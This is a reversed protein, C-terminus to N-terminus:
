GLGDRRRSRRPAAGARVPRPRVDPQPQVMEAAVARAREADRAEVAEVLRRHSEVSPGLDGFRRIVAEAGLVMDQRLLARIDLMARLLYRNGAADALALHFEVDADSYDAPTAAAAEM